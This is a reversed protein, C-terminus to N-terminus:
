IQPEEKIGRLGYTINNHFQYLVTGLNELDVHGIDFTSYVNLTGYGEDPEAEVSCSLRIKM